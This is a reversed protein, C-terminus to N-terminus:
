CANDDATNAPAVHALRLVKPTQAESPLAMALLSLSVILAVVVVTLKLFSRRLFTRKM